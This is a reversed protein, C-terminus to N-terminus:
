QQGRLGIVSIDASSFECQLNTICWTTVSRTYVHLYYAEVRLLKSCWNSTRQCRTFEQQPDLGANPKKFEKNSVVTSAGQNLRKGSALM